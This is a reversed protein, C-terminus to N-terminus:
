RAPSAKAQARELFREMSGVLFREHTGKAIDDQGDSAEVAFVLRRGDVETLRARATITLGIPSPALHQINVVTGVTGAGDELAPAVCGIATEELLGVLAPTAFVPVGPNGFNDATNASTVERQMEFERGAVLEEPM